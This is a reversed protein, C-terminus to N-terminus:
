TQNEAAVAAKVMAVVGARMAASLMPWAEAVARLDEDAAVPPCVAVSAKAAGAPSVHPKSASDRGNTMAEFGM